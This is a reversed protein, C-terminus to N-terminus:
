ETAELDYLITTNTGGFNPYSNLTPIFSSLSSPFHLTCGSVGQLMYSFHYKDQGFSQTTLSNFYIDTIGTRCFCMYFTGGGSIDTLNTFRIVKPLGTTYYFAQMFCYVGSLDEIKSFDIDIEEYDSNSFASYFSEEGTVSVLNKIKLIKAQKNYSMFLSFASDATVSQINNLDVDVPWGYYPKGYSYFEQFDTNNITTINDPFRLYTNEPEGSGGGLLVAPCVRQSGLYMYGAM